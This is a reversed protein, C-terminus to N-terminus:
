VLFMDAGFHRITTAQSPSYSYPTARMHHTQRLVSRGAIAKSRIGCISSDFVLVDQDLIELGVVSDGRNNIYTDVFLRVLSTLLSSGKDEETTMIPHVSGKEIDERSWGVWVQGDLCGSHDLRTFSISSEEDTTSTETYGNSGVLYLSNSSGSSM